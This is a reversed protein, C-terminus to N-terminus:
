KAKAAPAAKAAASGPAGPTPMRGTIRWIPMPTLCQHDAADWWAGARDCKQVPWVYWWQYATAALSSVLFLGVIIYKTNTIWANM